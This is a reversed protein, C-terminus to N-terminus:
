DYKRPSYGLLRCHMNGMEPEAISEKKEQQEIIPLTSLWRFANPNKDLADAKLKEVFGFIKTNASDPKEDIPYALYTTGQYKKNIEVACEIIMNFYPMEDKLYSEVYEKAKKIHNDIFEKKNIGILREANEQFFTNVREHAISDVVEEFDKRLKDTHQASFRPRSFFGRTTHLSFKNIVSLFVRKLYNKFDNLQLYSIFSKSINQSSFAENSISGQNITISLEDRVYRERKEEPAQNMIDSIKELSGLSVASVSRYISSKALPSEGLLQGFHNKAKEYDSPKNNKAVIAGWQVLDIVKVGGVRKNSEFSYIKQLINLVYNNFGEQKEIEIRPIKPIRQRLEIVICQKLAGALDRIEKDSDKLLEDSMMYFKNLLESVRQEEDSYIETAWELKRALEKVRKSILTRVRMKDTQRSDDSPKWRTCSYKDNDDESPKWRICYKDNNDESMPVKIMNKLIFLIKNSTQTETQEGEWKAKKGDDQQDKLYMNLKITHIQLRGTPVIQIYTFERKKAWELVARIKQESFYSTNRDSILIILFDCSKAKELELSTADILYALPVANADASDNPSSNSKNDMKPYLWQFIRGLM